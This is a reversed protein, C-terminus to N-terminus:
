LTKLFETISKAKEGEKVTSAYAYYALIKSADVSDVKGNGDVDASKRQAETM